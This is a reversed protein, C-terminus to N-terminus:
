GSVNQLAKRAMNRYAIMKMHRKFNHRSKFFKYLGSTYVWRDSIDYPADHTVGNIVCPLPAPIM